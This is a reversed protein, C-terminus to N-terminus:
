NVKEEGPPLPFQKDPWMYMEMRIDKGYGKHFFPGQIM